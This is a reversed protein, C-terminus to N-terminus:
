KCTCARSATWARWAAKLRLEM